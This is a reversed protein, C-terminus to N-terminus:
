QPPSVCKLAPPTTTWNTSDHVSEGTGYSVVLKERGGNASGDPNITGFYRSHHGNDWKVEFDIINPGNIGGQSNGYIIERGAPAVAVV